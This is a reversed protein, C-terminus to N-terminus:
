FTNDTFWFTSQWWVKFKATSHIDWGWFIHFIFAQKKDAM